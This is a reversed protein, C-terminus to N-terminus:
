LADWPDVTEDEGWDGGGDEVNEEEDEEDEDEFFEKGHAFIEAQWPFIEPESLVWECVRARATTQSNYSPSPSFPSSPIEWPCPPDQRKLWKCVNIHGNCAAQRFTDEDWPCPSAQARLWKLVKAQGAQAAETCVSADWPLSPNLERLLKLVELHADTVGMEIYDIRWSHTVAARWVLLDDRGPADNQARLWQLVELHGRRVALQCCSEAM